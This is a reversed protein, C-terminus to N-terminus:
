NCPQSNFITHTNIILHRTSYLNKHIQRTLFALQLHLQTRTVTKKDSCIKKIPRTPFSTAPILLAHSSQPVVQRASKPVSNRQTMFRFHSPDANTVKGSKLKSHKDSSSIFDGQHIRIFTAAQLTYFLGLPMKM